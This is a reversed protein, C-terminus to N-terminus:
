RPRGATNTTSNSDLLATVTATVRAADLRRQSIALRHIQLVLEFPRVVLVASRAVDLEARPHAMVLLAYVPVDPMGLRGLLHALRGAARQAQAAPDAIQRLEGRKLQTWEGAGECVIRGALYKTEIVVAGAPGVVVHDVDGCGELPLNHIAVHDDGLRALANAVISEGVAGAAWRAAEDNKAATDDVLTETNRRVVDRLASHGGHLQRWRLVLGVLLAWSLVSDVPATWPYAGMLPRGALYNLVLVLLMLRGWPATGHGMFRWLWLCFCIASVALLGIGGLMLWTGTDRQQASAWYAYGSLMSWTGGVLSLLFFWGWPRGGARRASLLHADPPSRLQASREATYQPFQFVNATM